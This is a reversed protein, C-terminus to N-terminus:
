HGPCLSQLTNEGLKIARRGSRTKPEVFSWGTGGVMNVEGALLRKVVEKQNRTPQPGHGSGQSKRKRKELKKQRRREQEKAQRKKSKTKSKM